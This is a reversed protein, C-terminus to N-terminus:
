YGAAGGDAARSDAAGLRYGTKHDLSISMAHGPYYLAGIPM